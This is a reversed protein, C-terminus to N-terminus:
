KISSCTKTRCLLVAQQKSWRGNVAKDACELPENSTAGACLEIAQEPSWWGNLAKEACEVPAISVAGSCLTLAQNASWRGAIAKEACTFANTNDAFSSSSLISLALITLIKRM